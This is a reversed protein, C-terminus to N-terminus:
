QISGILDQMDAAQWDDPEIPVDLDLLERTEAIEETTPPTPM